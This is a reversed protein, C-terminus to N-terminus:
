KKVLIEFKNVTQAGEHIEEKGNFILRVTQGIVISKFAEDVAWNGWVGWDKGDSDTITHIDVMRTGGNIAKQETQKTAKYVGTLTDGPNKFQFTEPFPEVKVEWESDDFSETVNRATAM